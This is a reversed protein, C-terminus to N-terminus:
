GPGGGEPPGSNTPSGRLAISRFFELAVDNGPAISFRLTAGAKTVYQVAERWLATGVGKRRYGSAVRLDTVLMKNDSDAPHIVVRGVDFASDLVATIVKAGDDREEIHIVHM